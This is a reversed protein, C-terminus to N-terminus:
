RRASSARRSVRLRPGPVHSTPCACSRGWTGPFRCIGPICLCLCLHRHTSAKLGSSDAM